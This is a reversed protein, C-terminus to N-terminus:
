ARSFPSPGVVDLEYKKWFDGDMPLKTNDTDVFFQEMKGAPCFANLMRSEGSSVSSFAHPVRRPALVSAGAKLTVRQEGVQFAVAGEMVYFWEEQNWHLHLPPGGPKRHQHEIAFMESGAEHSTVTFQLLQIEDRTSARLPRRGRGDPASEAGTSARGQAQSAFLDHLGAASIMSTAARLFSRRQM